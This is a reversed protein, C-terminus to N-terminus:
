CGAPVDLTESGSPATTHTYDQFWRAGRCTTM